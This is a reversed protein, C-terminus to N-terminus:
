CHSHMRLLLWALGRCQPKNSLTDKQYLIHMPIPYRRPLPSTSSVCRVEGTPSRLVPILAPFLLFCKRVGWFSFRLAKTDLSGHDAGCLVPIHQQSASYASPPFLDSVNASTALMEQARTNAQREATLLAAGAGDRERGRIMCYEDAEKGRSCTSINPELPLLVIVCQELVSVRWASARYCTSFLFFSPPDPFAWVSLADKM